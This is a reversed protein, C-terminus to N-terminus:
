GCLQAKGEEMVEQYGGVFPISVFVSHHDCLLPRHVVDWQRRMWPLDSEVPFSSGRDLLLLLLLTARRLGCRGLGQLDPLAFCVKVLVGCAIHIDFCDFVAAYFNNKAM